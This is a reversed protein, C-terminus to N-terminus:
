LPMIKIRKPLTAIGLGIAQHMDEMLLVTRCVCKLEIQRLFQLCMLNRTGQFFNFTSEGVEHTIRKAVGGACACYLDKARELIAMKFEADFVRTNPDRRLM